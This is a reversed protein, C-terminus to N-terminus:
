KILQELANLLEEGRLDKAIIRREKDLLFNRPISKIKLARVQKDPVNRDNVGRVHIFHRTSDEEIAKEWKLTDADITVAYVALKDKYREKAMKLFPTEKRCPVCWSAWFDVLVYEEAISDTNIKKKSIHPFALQLKAGMTTDKPEVYYRKKELARIRESAAKSKATAPETNTTSLEQIRMNNPFKQQAYQILSKFPEEKSHEVTYGPMRLIYKWTLMPYQTQYVEKIYAETLKENYYQISDTSLSKDNSKRRIYQTKNYFALFENFMNNGKMPHPYQGNVTNEDIEIECNTNPEIDFFLYSPGIQTFLIHLNIGRNNISNFALKVITDRKNVKASDLIAYENGGVYGSAYIWQETQSLETSLKITINVNKDTACILLPLWILILFLTHRM